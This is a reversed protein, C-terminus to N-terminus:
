PQYAEYKVGSERAMTKAAEFMEPPMSTTGPGYVIRSVGAQILGGMCQDCCAHSVYVECGETRIGMRAAFSILNRESHQVWLYKQPRERREPLDLVGRAPGNFSTLIVVGDRVLAAGVKTGDKSMRSALIAHEM